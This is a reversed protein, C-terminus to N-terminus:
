YTQKSRTKETTSTLLDKKRNEERCKLLEARLQYYHKKVMELEVGVVTNVLERKGTLHNPCELLVERHLRQFDENAYQLQEELSPGIVAANSLTASVILLCSILLKIKM